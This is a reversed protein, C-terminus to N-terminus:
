FPYKTSYKLVLALCLCVCVITAVIILSDSVVFGGVSSVAASAVPLPHAYFCKLSTLNDCFLIQPFLPVLWNIESSCPFM